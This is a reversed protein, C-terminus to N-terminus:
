SRSVPPHTDSGRRGTIRGLGRAHGNPAAYVEYTYGGLGPEASAGTAVVGLLHGDTKAVMRQLRRVRDRSSRKMRAVLIVGSAAQLLPLADSVALAAATDVIVLDSEQELHRLVDRMRQSSLLESPNRPPAGAPVVTLRGSEVEGDLPVELLVDALVADHTLVEALGSASAALGFRATVQPHRLDADVITVRKGSRAVAVALQTAVTTKGDQQSASTVVVSAPPRDSNFYRLAGRLMQFAEGALPETMGKPTFAATPIASLLPLGTLEELEMATRIRRDASEAVLVAGLGLLLGVLVSFLLTRLATSDAIRKADTAPDIIEANSGQAARLARVRQLQDSLQRRGTADRAPLQDLQDALRGITRNLDAVARRERTAVIAGAFANAIAVAREPRTADGTITIFGAETDPTAQMQDLLARVSRPPPDLDRAAVRAVTTTEILRAAAETSQPSPAVTTSFLSTDVTVSQVQLLASSEYRPPAPDSRLLLVAVPPAVAVLLFLLKWRWLIRLHTRPDRGATGPEAIWTDAPTSM